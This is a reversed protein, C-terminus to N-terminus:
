NENMRHQKALKTLNTKEYVGNEALSMMGNTQDPSSAVM